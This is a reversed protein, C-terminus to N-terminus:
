MRRKDLEKLFELDMYYKHPNQRDVYVRITKRYNLEFNPDFHLRIRDTFVHYAGAPDTWSCKITYIWENYMYRSPKTSYVPKEASDFYADVCWGETILKNVDAKSQRILLLGAAAMLLGPILVIIGMKVLGAQFFKFAGYIEGASLIFLIRVISKDIRM